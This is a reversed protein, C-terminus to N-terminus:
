HCRTARPVRRRALLAHRAQFSQATQDGTAVGAPQQSADVGVPGRALPIRQGDLRHDDSLILDVWVM